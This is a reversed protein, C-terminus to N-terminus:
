ADLILDADVHEPRPLDIRDGLEYSGIGDPIEDSEIAMELGLHRALLHYVAAEHFVLRRWYSGSKEVIDRYSDAFDQLTTETAIADRDVLAEHIRQRM